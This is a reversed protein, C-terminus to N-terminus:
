FHINLFKGLKWFFVVSILLYLFKKWQQYRELWHSYKSYNRLLSRFQLDSITRYIVYQGTWIIDVAKPKSVSSFCCLIPKKTDDVVIYEVMDTYAMLSHIRVIEYLFDPKHHRKGSLMEWFAIGVHSGFVQQLVTSFLALGSREEELQIEFKQLTRSVEVKICSESQNHTGQFLTNMAEVFDTNSPHGGSELFYIELM